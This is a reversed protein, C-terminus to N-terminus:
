VKSTLAFFIHDVRGGGRETAWDEAVTLGGRGVGAALTCLSGQGEGSVWGCQGCVAVCSFGALRCNHYHFFISWIYHTNLWGADEWSGKLQKGWWGLWGTTLYCNIQITGTRIWRNEQQHHPQSHLQGLWFATKTCWKEWFWPMETEFTGRKRKHVCYGQATNNNKTIETQSFSLLTIIFLRMSWFKDPTGPITTCDTSYVTSPPPMHSVSVRYNCSFNHPFTTM